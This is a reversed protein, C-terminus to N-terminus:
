RIRLMKRSVTRGDFELRCFYVGSPLARGLGDRGDWSVAHSGASLAGDVLRVQRRGTVDFVQLTAHGDAELRFPITTAALFPNPRNPLLSISAAVSVVPSPPASTAERVLPDLGMFGLYATVWAQDETDLDAPNAMIGGDQDTDDFALLYNTLSEHRDGWIPDGTSEELRKEGLAYWGQWANEWSGPDAVTDMDAAYTAVWSAEEAPNADFYSELLGWMVAGGSMAWRETGLITPDAEVWERARNGRNAGRASWLSDSEIVGYRRLNAAGWALVPPNVDQNFDDGDLNLTHTALYSACSDVYAKYTLDSFVQEYKMGARVAWGCNYYRYYGIAPFSSGEEDYAPHNMVYIWSANLHSLIAADGSLEYYRSFMWISESTNDTQIVDPLHEGERIGGYDPSLSDAVQMSVIFWTAAYLDTLYNSRDRQPPLIPLEPREGVEFAERARRDDDATWYPTASAPSHWCGLLIAALAAIV